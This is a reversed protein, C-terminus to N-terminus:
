KMAKRKRNFEAKSGKPPPSRNLQSPRISRFPTQQVPRTPHIPKEAFAEDSDSDSDSANAATSSAAPSSPPAAATAGAVPSNPPPAPTEDQRERLAREHKCGGKVKSVVMMQSSWMRPTVLYRLLHRDPDEMACKMCPMDSRAGVVLPAVKEVPAM